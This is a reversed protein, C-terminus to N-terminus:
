CPTGRGSPMLIRLILLSASLGTKPVNPLIALVAMRM